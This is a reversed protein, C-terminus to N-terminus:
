TTTSTGNAESPDSSGSTDGDAPPGDADPRGRGGMGGEEVSTVAFAADLLVHVHAGDAKEVHRRVHRQLHGARRQRHGWRGRGERGRRGQGRCGRQAHRGRRADRPGIGAEPRTGSSSGPSPDATSASATSTDGAASALTAGTVGLAAAAAIGAGALTLTKQKKKM